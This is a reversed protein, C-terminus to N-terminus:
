RVSPPSGEARLRVLTAGWGGSTEDGLRFGAVMEMRELLAHVTRRLAGTGKGHVIRVELIGLRRCEELYEPVLTKIDRPSFAHLDLVGDIAIAVPSPDDM